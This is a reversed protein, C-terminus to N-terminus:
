KSFKNLHKSFLLRLRPNRQSHTFHQKEEFYMMLEQISGWVAQKNYNTSMEFDCQKFVIFQWLKYFVIFNIVAEYLYKDNINKELFFLYFVKTLYKKLLKNIKLFITLMRFIKMEINLLLYRLSSLYLISLSSAIKTVLGGHSQNQACLVVKSIM